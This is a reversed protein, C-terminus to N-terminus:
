ARREPLRTRFLDLGKIAAAPERDEGKLIAQVARLAALLTAAQVPKELLGVATARADRAADVSATVFLAPIGFAEWLRQAVYPGTGGDALMIDVLALDPRHHQAQALAQGSHIATGVVTHGGSSLTHEMETAIVFDDEVLLLRMAHDRSVRTRHFGRAAVITPRRLIDPLAKM